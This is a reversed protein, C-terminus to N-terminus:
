AKVYPLVSVDRVIALMTVGKLAKYNCFWECASSESLLITQCDVSSLSGFRNTLRM